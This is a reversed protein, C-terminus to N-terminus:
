RTSRGLSDRAQEAYGVVRSLPMGKLGIAFGTRSGDEWMCAAGPASSAAGGALAACTIPGGPSYAVVVDGSPQTTVSLSEGTVSRAFEVLLDSPSGELRGGVTIVLRPSDVDGWTSTETAGVAHASWASTARDAASQAVPSTLRYLGAILTQSEKKSAESATKPYLLYALAAIGILAAAIGVTLRNM